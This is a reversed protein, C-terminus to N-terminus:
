RCIFMKVGDDQQKLFEDYLLLVATTVSRHARYTNQNDSLLHNKELHKKLRGIVIKEIIKSMSPLVAEPRYNTAEFLSIVVLRTKVGSMKTESIKM